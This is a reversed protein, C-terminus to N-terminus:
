ALSPPVVLFRHPRPDMVHPGQRPGGSRQVAHKPPPIMASARSTIHEWWAQSGESCCLLYMTNGGADGPFGLHDKWSSLSVKYSQKKATLLINPTSYGTLHILALWSKAKSHSTQIPNSGRHLMWVLLLTPLQQVQSWLRSAPRTVVLIIHAKRKPATSFFWICVSNIATKWLNYNYM